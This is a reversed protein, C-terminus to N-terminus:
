HFKLGKNNTRITDEVSKNKMNRFTLFIVILKNSSNKLCIYRKSVIHNWIYEFGKKHGMYEFIVVTTDIFSNLWFSLFNNSLKLM